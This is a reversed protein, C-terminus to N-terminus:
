TTIGIEYKRRVVHEATWIGVFYKGLELRESANGRNIKWMKESGSLFTRACCISQNIVIIIPIDVLFNDFLTDWKLVRFFKAGNM